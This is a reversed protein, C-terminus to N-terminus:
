FRTLSVNADYDVRRCCATATSWEDWSSQLRRGIMWGWWSINLLLLLLLLQGDHRSASQFRLVPRHHVFFSTQTISTRTCHWQLLQIANRKCQRFFFLFFVLFFLEVYGHPGNCPIEDRKRCKTGSLIWYPQVQQGVYIVFKSNFIKSGAKQMSRVQLAHEFSQNALSLFPHVAKHYDVALSSATGSLIYCCNCTWCTWTWTAAMFIHSLM